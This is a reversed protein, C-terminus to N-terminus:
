QSVCACELVIIRVFVEQSVRVRRSERESV